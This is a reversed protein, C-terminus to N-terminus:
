SQRSATKLDNKPKGSNQELSCAFKDAVTGRGRTVVYYMDKLELRIKPTWATNSSSSFFATIALYLVFALSFYQAM